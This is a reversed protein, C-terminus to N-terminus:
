FKKNFNIFRCFIFGVWNGGCWGGVNDGRGGFEGCCGGLNDSRIELLNSGYFNGVNFGICM